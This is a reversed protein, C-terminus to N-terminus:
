AQQADEDEAGATPETSPTRAQAQAKSEAPKTADKQDTIPRMQGRPTSEAARAQKAEDIAKGVWTGGLDPVEPLEVDDFASFGNPSEVLGRDLLVAVGIMLAALSLVIV